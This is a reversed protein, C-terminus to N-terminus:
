LVFAVPMDENYADVVLYRCRTKNAPLSYNARVKGKLSPM